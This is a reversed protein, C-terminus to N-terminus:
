HLQEPQDTESNPEVKVQNEYNFGQKQRKTGACTKSGKPRKASKDETVPIVDAKNRRGQLTSFHNPFVSYDRTEPNGFFMGPESKPYNVKNRTDNDNNLQVSQKPVVIKQKRQGLEPSTAILPPQGKPLSINSNEQEQESHTTHLSGT